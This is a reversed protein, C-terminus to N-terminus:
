GHLTRQSQLDLSLGNQFEALVGGFELSHITLPEEDPFRHSWFSVIHDIVGMRAGLDVFLRPAELLFKRFAAAKGRDVLDRFADDYLALVATCARAAERISKRLKKRQTELSDVDSASPRDSFRILDLESIVRNVKKAIEGFLWKYYLFGKWSFIGDQFDRGNLGLTVRLPALREGADSAMMADVLISTAENEGDNATTGFALSILEGIQARAFAHMRAMDAKSIDFYCDAPRHQHRALHEKLLFPDLSPLTEMVDLVSLDRKTKNGAQGLFEAMTERYGIQGIFISRGGSRLMTADFPFIIKTAISPSGPMLYAEDSRLRHKIFIARNLNPDSFFPKAKYEPQEKCLENVRSLNLVRSTSASDSLSKLSRMETNTVCLEWEKQSLKRAFVCFNDCLSAGTM